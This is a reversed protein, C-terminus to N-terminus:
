GFYLIFSRYITGSVVEDHEDTVTGLLRSRLSLMDMM